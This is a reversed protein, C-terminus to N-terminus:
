APIEQRPQRPSARRLLQLCDLTAAMDLASFDDQSRLTADAGLALLTQVVEAKGASAAYMLATAGTLNAHDLPVGRAVLARILGAEGHVCALWLANNGDDNVADLPVGLQLLADLAHHAGRWAAHMLPTNGHSGPAAPRAADFGEAMLWAALPPPVNVPHTVTRLQETDVEGQWSGLAELATWGGILDAVETFGFDAFMAAYSQSAHGHYCYILVPRQRPERLLLAEHCRGDLRLAGALRSREHHAADRADLRLAQPHANLWDPLETVTLRRLPRESM